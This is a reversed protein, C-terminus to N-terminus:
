RGPEPPWALVSALLVMRVFPNVAAPGFAFLWAGADRREFRALVAHNRDRLLGPEAGRPKVIAALQDGGAQTLGNRYVSGVHHEEADFVESVHDLGARDLEPLFGDLWAGLAVREEALRQQPVARLAAEVYFGSLWPWM